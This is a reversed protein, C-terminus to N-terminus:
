NWRLKKNQIQRKTKMEFWFTGDVYVKGKEMILSHGDGNSDKFYVM